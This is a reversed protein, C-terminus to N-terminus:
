NALDPKIVAVKRGIYFYALKWDINLISGKQKPRMFQERLQENLGFIMPHM